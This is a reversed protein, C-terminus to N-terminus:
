PASSLEAEIELVQLRKRLEHIETGEDIRVSSDSAPNEITLAIPVTPTSDSASPNEEHVSVGRKRVVIRGREILRQSFEDEAALPYEKLLAAFKEPFDPAATALQLYRRSFEAAQTAVEQEHQERSKQFAMQALMIQYEQSLKETQRTQDAPSLMESEEPLGQVPDLTLPRLGNSSSSMSSDSSSSTLSQASLSGSFLIMILFHLPKM